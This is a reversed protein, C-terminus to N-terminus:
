FLSIFLIIVATTLTALSVAGLVLRIRTGLFGFPLDIRELVLAVVNAVILAFPSLKEALKRIAKFRDARAVKPKIKAPPAEKTEPEPEPEPQADVRKTAVPEKTEAPEDEFEEENPFPAALEQAASDLLEPSPPPPEEMPPLAETANNPPQDPEPKDLEDLEVMFERMFDPVELNGDAGNDADASNASGDPADAQDESGIDVHGDPVPESGIETAVDDSISQIEDITSELGKIQDLTDLVEDLAEAANEAASEVDSEDTNIDSDPLDRPAEGPPLSLSSDPESGANPDNTSDNSAEDATAVAEPDVGASAAEEQVGVDSALDGALSSAQALLADLDSESTLGADDGAPIDSNPDAM